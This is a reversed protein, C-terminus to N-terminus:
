KKKNIQYLQNNKFSIIIDRFEFITEVEVVHPYYYKVWYERNSHLIVSEPQHVYKSEDLMQKFIKAADM